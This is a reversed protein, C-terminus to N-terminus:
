WLGYYEVNNTGGVDVMFTGCTIARFLDCVLFRVFFTESLKRERWSKFLTRWPSLLSYLPIYVPLILVSM